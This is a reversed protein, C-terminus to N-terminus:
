CKKASTTFWHSNSMRSVTREYRKTQWLTTNSQRLGNDYIGPHAVHRLEFQALFPLSRLQARAQSGTKAPQPDRIVLFSDRTGMFNTLARTKSDPSDTM